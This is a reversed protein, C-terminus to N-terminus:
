WLNRAELVRGYEDVSLTTRTDNSFIALVLWVLLWLGCTLLSLIAHAVHNVRKRYLLVAAFEQQLEVTAGSAVRSRVAAELVGRRADSTVTVAEGAADTPDAPRNAGFRAEPDRNLARDVERLREM